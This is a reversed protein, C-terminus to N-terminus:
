NAMRRRWNMIVQCGDCSKLVALGSHWSCVVTKLKERLYSSFFIRKNKNKTKINAIELKEWHSVSITCFFAFFHISFVIMMQLGLYICDTLSNVFTSVLRTLLSKCLWSVDDVLHMETSLFDQQWKELDWFYIDSRM